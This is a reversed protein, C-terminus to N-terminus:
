RSRRASRPARGAEHRANKRRERRRRPAGGKAPALRRLGALRRVSLAVALGFAGAVIPLLWRSGAEASRERLDGVAGLLRARSEAVDRDLENM